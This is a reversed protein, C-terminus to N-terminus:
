PQLDALYQKKYLQVTRIIRYTGVYLKIYVLGCVGNRETM